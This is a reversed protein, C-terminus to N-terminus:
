GTESQRREIVLEYCVEGAARYKAEFPTLPEGAGLEQWAEVPVPGHITM